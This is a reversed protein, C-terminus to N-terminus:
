DPIDISEHKPGTKMGARRGCCVPQCELPKQKLDKRLHALLTGPPFLIPFVPVASWPQYESFNNLKVVSLM